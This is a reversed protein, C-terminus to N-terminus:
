NIKGNEIENLLWSISADYYKMYTKSVTYAQLDGFVALYESQTSINPDPEKPITIIDEEDCGFLLSCFLLSIFSCRIQKM